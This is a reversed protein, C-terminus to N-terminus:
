TCSDRLRVQKVDLTWCRDPPVWFSKLGELEAKVYIAFYPM